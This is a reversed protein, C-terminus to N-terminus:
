EKVAVGVFGLSYPIPLESEIDYKAGSTNFGCRNLMDEYDMSGARCGLSVFQHVYRNVNQIARLIPHKKQDYYVFEYVFFKGGPKLIRHVERLGKEKDKVCCLVHTAIVIDFSNDDIINKVDEINGTLMKDITLNPYKKVVHDQQKELYANLELTTVVSGNPYYPFSGGTGPGIELIKLNHGRLKARNQEEGLSAFLQRRVRLEGKNVALSFAINYMIAYYANGISSNYHSALIIPWFFVIVFLTFVIIWNAFISKFTIPYM